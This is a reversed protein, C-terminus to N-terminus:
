SIHASVTSAPEPRRERVLAVDHPAISAGFTMIRCAHRTSTFVRVSTKSCALGHKGAPVAWDLKSTAAGVIVVARDAADLCPEHVLWMAALATRWPVVRTTRKVRRGAFEGPDGLRRMRLQEDQVVPPSRAQEPFRLFQKASLTPNRLAIALCVLLVPSKRAFRQVSLYEANGIEEDSPARKRANAAKARVNVGLIVGVPPRLIAV